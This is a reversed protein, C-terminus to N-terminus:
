VTINIAQDSVVPGVDFHGGYVGRGRPGSHSADAEGRGNWSGWQGDWQGQRHQMAAQDQSGNLGNHNLILEVSRVSVGEQALRAALMPAENQLDALTQPNDVEIIARVEDGSSQLTVKVSGLEPPDLRLVMQHDDASLAMSIAEGVQQAPGSLAEAAQGVAQPMASAVIDAPQAAMATLAQANLASSTGAVGATSDAVPAAQRGAGVQTRVGDGGIRGSDAGNLSVSRSRPQNSVVFHQDAAPVPTQSAAQPATPRYQAVAKAVGASTRGQVADTIPQQNAQSGAVAAQAAPQLGPRSAAAVGAATVGSAAQSPKGAAPLSIDIAAVAAQTVAVAPAATAVGANAPGAASTDARVKPAAVAQSTAEGTIAAINAAVTTGPVTDPRNAGPALGRPEAATLPSAKEPAGPQGDHRAAQPAVVATRPAPMWGRAQAAGISAVSTADGEVHGAKAAPAGQLKGLLQGFDVAAAAQAIAHESQSSQRQGQQGLPKGVGIRLGRSMPGADGGLGLSAFIAGLGAARNKGARLSM